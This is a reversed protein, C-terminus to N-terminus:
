EQKEAQEHNDARQAHVKAIAEERNRLRANSDDLAAQAKTVKGEAKQVAQKAQELKLM